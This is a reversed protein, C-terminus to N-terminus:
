QNGQSAKFSVLPIGKPCKGGCHRFQDGCRPCYALSEASEQTPAALLAEADLDRSRLLAHVMPETVSSQWQRIRISLPSDPSERPPPLPWRHDAMVTRGLKALEAKIGYVAAICLPHRSSEWNAALLHRLRLAQAPVMVASIWQSLAPAISGRPTSKRLRFAEILALVHLGTISVLLLPMAHNIRIVLQEPLFTTPDGIAYISLLMCLLTTIGNYTALSRSRLMWARHMRREGNIGFRRALERRILGARAEPALLVMKERLHAIDAARLQPTSACFDDGNIRIREPDGSIATIEEWKFARPPAIRECAPDASAPPLNCIGEPSISAGADRAHVRWSWPWPALLHLTTLSLRRMGPLVADSAAHRRIRRLSYGDILYLGWFVAILPWWDSM